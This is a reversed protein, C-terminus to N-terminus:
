KGKNFKIRQFLIRFRMMTEMSLNELILSLIKEFLTDVKQEPIIKSFISISNLPAIAILKKHSICNKAILSSKFSIKFKIEM